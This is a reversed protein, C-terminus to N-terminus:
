GVSCIKSRIFDDDREHRSIKPIISCNYRTPSKNTFTEIANFELFNREQRLGDGFPNDLSQRRNPHQRRETAIQRSFNRLGPVLGVAAVQM